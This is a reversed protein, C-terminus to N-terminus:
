EFYSRKTTLTFWPVISRNLNLKQFNDEPGAGLRNGTTLQVLPMVNKHARCMRGLGCDVEWLVTDVINGFGM